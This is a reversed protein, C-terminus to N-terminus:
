LTPVQDVGTWWMSSATANISLPSVQHSQLAECYIEGHYGSRLLITDGAKVPAQPNKLSGATDRTEILNQGFVQEITRWPREASGDNDMDGKEPDVYFVAGHLVSAVLCELVFTVLFSSACLGMM